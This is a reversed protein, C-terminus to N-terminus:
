VEAKEDIACDGPIATGYQSYMPNFFGIVNDGVTGLSSNNVQDIFGRATAGGTDDLEESLASSDSSDSQRRQQQGIHAPILDMNSMPSVPLSGGKRGRQADAALSATRGKRAAFCRMCNLFSTKMPISVCDFLM